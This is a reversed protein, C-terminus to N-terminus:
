SLRKTKSIEIELKKLHTRVSDDSYIFDSALGYNNEDLDEGTIEAVCLVLWQLQEEIKKSLVRIGELERYERQSIQTKKEM